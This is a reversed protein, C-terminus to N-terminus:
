QGEASEDSPPDDAETHIETVPPLLVASLSVVSWPVVTHTHCM